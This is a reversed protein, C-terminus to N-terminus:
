IATLRAIQMQVQMNDMGFRRALRQVLETYKDPDSNAYQICKTAMIRLQEASYGRAREYARDFDHMADFAERMLRDMEEQTVEQFNM